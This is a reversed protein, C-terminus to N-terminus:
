SAPQLLRMIRKALYERICVSGTSGCEAKDVSELLLFDSTTDTRTPRHVLMAQPTEPTEGLRWVDCRIEM